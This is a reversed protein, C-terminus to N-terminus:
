TTALSAVIQKFSEFRERSIDESEVANTLACGPESQHQCDRFRCQGLYPSFERFGSFVTEPAVHTLGFDRVGPSDILRGGEPLHFLEATTTTHRGKDAVESLAGVRISADPLLRQILSSKGVGSQGVLVLTDQGILATLDTADPLEHHTTLTRYGLAAYRCLQKALEDNPELLDAKNLVLAAEVGINEAAVLYRDILNAQPAPEPAFVILMLDINAAVPRLRGQADPRQLVNHRTVLADVVGTEGTPLWLVEDGAVPSELHARLHCLLRNGARTEILAQKGYRAIVVGPQGTEAAVDGESLRQTQIRRAQQDTLRRKTMTSTYSM